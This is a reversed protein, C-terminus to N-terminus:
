RPATPGRNVFARVGHAEVLRVRPEVGAPTFTLMMRATETGANRFSHVTGRPVSVSDGPRAAITEDGLRFEVAGELLYFTEDDRQHIHPPPGGDPALVAEMAVYAGGTEAATIHVTYHDDPGWYAPGTVPPHRLFLAERPSELLASM